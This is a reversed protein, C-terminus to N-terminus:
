HAASCCATLYAEIQYKNLNVPVPFKNLRNSAAITPGAILQASCVGNIQLLGEIKFTMPGGAFDGKKARKKIALNQIQNNRIFAEISTLFLKVSGQNDDDALAMRKTKSDIFHLGDELVEVIVLIVENSKIEIGCHKLINL